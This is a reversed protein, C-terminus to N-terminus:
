ATTTRGDMKKEACAAAGLRVRHAAEELAARVVASKSVRRPASLVELAANLEDPIEL